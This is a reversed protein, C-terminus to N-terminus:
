QFYIFHFYARFKHMTEVKWMGEYLSIFFSKCDVVAKNRISSNKNHLPGSTEIKIQLDRKYPLNQSFEPINKSSTFFIFLFHFRYHFFFDVPSRQIFSLLSFFTFRLLNSIFVFLFFQCDM